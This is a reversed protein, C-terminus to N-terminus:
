RGVCPAKAASAALAHAEANTKAAGVLCTAEPDDPAIRVVLLRSIQDGADSLQIGIRQILAFPRGGQHRWEAKEAGIWSFSPFIPTPDIKAVASWDPHVLQLFVRSDGDEVVLNFGFAGKCVTSAGAEYTAFLLCDDVKVSTYASQAGGAAGAQAACVAAVGMATLVNISRRFIERM